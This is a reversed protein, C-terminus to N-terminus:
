QVLGSSRRVLHFGVAAVIVVVGLLAIRTGQPWGQLLMYNSVLSIFVAGIASRLASGEGGGIATGGVLIAAIVDFDLTSFVDITARNFQATQLVGVIAVGVAALTFAFVVLAPVGIGSARAADRSAGALLTKRGARSYRMLISVLILVAIFIWTQSPIGLERGFGLWAVALDDPVLIAASGTAWGAIGALLASAGLATVIPNAGVAVIV